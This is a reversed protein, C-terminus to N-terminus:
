SGMLDVVYGTGAPRFGLGEFFSEARARPIYTSLSAKYCGLRQCEALAHLMMRRGVGVGQRDSAVAVHEIVGSPAGHRALNDMILLAFCGVVMGGEEALYLRYSPYAAFRRFIARAEDLTLIDGDDIDAQSYLTLVAALDEEGAERIHFSM